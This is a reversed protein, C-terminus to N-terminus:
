ALAVLLAHRFAEGRFDNGRGLLLTRGELLLFVGVAHSFGVLCKGVETESMSGMSRFDHGLSVEVKRAVNADHGVHVSSLRGRSLTNQVVCADAVLNALHM